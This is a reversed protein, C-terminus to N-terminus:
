SSRFAMTRTWLRRQRYCSYCVHTRRHKPLLPNTDHQQTENALVVIPSVSVVFKADFDMVVGFNHWVGETFATSFLTGVATNVNGLMVLEDTKTADGGAITGTKLVVQNTSFKADELFFLQYEHSQNLPRATDKMLSFHM